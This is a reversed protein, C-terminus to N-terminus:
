YIGQPLIQWKTQAALINRIRFCINFIEKEKTSNIRIVMVLMNFDTGNFPLFFFSSWHPEMEEWWQRTYCSSGTAPWLLSSLRETEPAPRHPNHHCILQFSPIWQVWSEQALGTGGESVAKWTDVIGWVTEQAWPAHLPRCGPITYGLAPRHSRVAFVKSDYVHWGM